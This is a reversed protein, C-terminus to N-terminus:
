GGGLRLPLVVVSREGLSVFGMPIKGQAVDTIRVGDAGADSVPSRAWQTLRGARKPCNAPLLFVAYRHPLTLKNNDLSETRNFSFRFPRRCYRVTGANYGLLGRCDAEVGVKGVSGTSRAVHAAQDGITNDRGSRPRPFSGAKRTRSRHNFRPRRRPKPGGSTSFPARFPRHEVRGNAARYNSQADFIEGLGAPFRRPRM